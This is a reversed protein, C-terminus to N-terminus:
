SGEGPTRQNRHRDRCRHRNRHAVAGACSDEPVSVLQRRLSEIRGSPRAGLDEELVSELRSCAQLAEARRGDAVLARILLEWSVEAYPDSEIMAALEVAARRHDGIAIRARALCQEVRQHLACLRASEAVATMDDALAEYPHGGWLRGAAELLEVAARTPPLARGEDAQAEFLAADTGLGLRYGARTSLVVEPGFSRRLRSVQNQLSSRASGPAGSPWVADILVDAGVPAGPPAAEHGDDPGSGAAGAPVSAPGQRLALASLLAAQSRTVERGDVTVTGLVTLRPRVVDDIGNQGM